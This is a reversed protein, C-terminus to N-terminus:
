RIYNLAITLVIGIVALLALRQLISMGSKRPEQQETMRTGTLTFEAERNPYRNRYCTGCRSDDFAPTMALLTALSTAFSTDLAIAQAAAMDVAMKAVPVRLGLVHLGRSTVGTVGAGEQICGFM